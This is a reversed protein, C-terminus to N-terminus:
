RWEETRISGITCAGISPSAYVTDATRGARASIVSFAWDSHNADVTSAPSRTIVTIARCPESTHSADAARDDSTGFAITWFIV